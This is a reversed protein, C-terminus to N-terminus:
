RSRLDEQAFFKEERERIRERAERINEVTPTCWVVEGGAEREKMEELCQEPTRRCAEQSDKAYEAIRSLREWRQSFDWTETEPQAQTETKERM